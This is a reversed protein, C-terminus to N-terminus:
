KARNNWLWRYETIHLYVEGKWLVISPFNPQHVADPFGQPELAIGAGSYYPYGAKGIDHGTMFYGTYVQLSPQNTHIQLQRGFKEESLIAALRINADAGELKYALSFGRNHPIDYLETDLAKNIPSTERFDLPTGDLSRLKGTPILNRDCEILYSSNLCLHHQFINDCSRSGCLNFFAHNTLNVITDSDAVAKCVMKLVDDKTLTYCVSVQLNGPYGENGDSSFYRFIVFEDGDENVGGEEEWFCNHFAQIGGHLHTTENENAALQYRHGNLDFSADSIRGCVRGVIAGHYKEEANQYEFINNFGLLVDEFNGFKDPVIMNVWRAGFSSFSASLGHSNRLVIFNKFTNM